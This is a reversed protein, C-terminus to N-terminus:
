FHRVIDAAKPRLHVQRIKQVNVCLSSTRAILHMETEVPNDHIHSVLGGWCNRDNRSAWKGAVVESQTESSNIVIRHIHYIPNKSYNWSLLLLKGIVSTSLCTYAFSNCGMVVM